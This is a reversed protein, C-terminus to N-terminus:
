CKKARIQLNVDPFCLFQYQWVGSGLCFTLCWENRWGGSKPRKLIPRGVMDHPVFKFHIKLLTITLSWEMRSFELRRLRAGRYWVTINPSMVNRWGTRCGFLIPTQCISFNSRIKWVLMSTSKCLYVSTSTRLSCEFQLKVYRLKTQSSLYASCQLFVIM